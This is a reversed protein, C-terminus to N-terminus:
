HPAWFWLLVPRDGTVTDALTTPAGTDLELVELLRIDDGVELDGTDDAVTTPDSGTAAESPNDGGCATATLSLAAVLVAAIRTPPHVVSVTAM